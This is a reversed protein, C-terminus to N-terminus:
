ILHHTQLARPHDVTTMCHEILMRVLESRTRRDKLSMDDLWDMHEQDIRVTLSTQTNTKPM